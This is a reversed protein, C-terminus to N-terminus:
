MGRGNEKPLFAERVTMLVHARGVIGSGCIAVDYTLTIM